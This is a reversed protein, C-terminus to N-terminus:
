KKDSINQLINTKIQKYINAKSIIKKKNLLIFRYNLDYIGVKLLKIKMSFLM